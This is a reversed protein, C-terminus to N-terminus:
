LCEGGEMRSGGAGVSSWRVIKHRILEHEALKTSNLIPEFGHNKLDDNFLEIIAIRM